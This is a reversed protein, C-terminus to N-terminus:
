KKHITHKRNSNDRRKIDNIAKILKHQRYLLHYPFMIMNMTNTTTSRHIMNQFLTNARKRRLKSWRATVVHLCLTLSLNSTKRFSPYWIFKRFFYLNSKQIIYSLISKYFTAGLVETLVQLELATIRTHNFLEVKCCLIYYLAQPCDRDHSHRSGETRMVKLQQEEVLQVHWPLSSPRKNM